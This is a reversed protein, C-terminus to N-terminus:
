RLRRVIGRPLNKRSAPNALFDSLVQEYLPLDNAYGPQKMSTASGLHKLVFYDALLDGQAEMNYDCLRKDLALRYQYSLGIRVAGRLRVPYGLQHQWVHVMEHMFWHRAHESGNSFDLLCCSKHFYIAGNPTMACNKPQLGFPLYRRNYIRVAACDIADGFLRQVMASEGRTLPRFRQRGQRLKM